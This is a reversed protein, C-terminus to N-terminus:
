QCNKFKGALQGCAAEIEAGFRFRETVKIGNSELIEKFKKIRAAPSPEFIGTFNYSILNVFYLSKNFDKLLNALGDAMSISDNFDKIMIYEFMVRRNTKDIYASVEKLIKEISYKKNVPMIKSRLRDNPAHLSIALNIQLNQESLKKIGETIGVTSISIHRAGINLGDKENIIKIAKLVNEYNLFPEGMGMFVINTIKQSQKKLFRAFLIVQEVIESDTLNRKFGLKGTACFLCGFPCGVQSSICITNRGDRHRMLVAEVANGDKFFVVAKATKGDKSEKIESKIELPCEKKLIERLDKPLSSVEDWSEALHCFVARYAQKLRYVPYPQLIDKLKDLNM